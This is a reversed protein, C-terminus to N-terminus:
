RGAGSGRAPTPPVVPSPVAAPAGPVPAVPAAGPGNLGSGAAAGPLLQPNSPTQNLLNLELPSYGSEELVMNILRMLKPDSFAAPNAMGIQVIESLTDLHEQKASNEGTIIMQISYTLDTYYDMEVKVQKPSKAIQDGVLEGVLQIQAPDPMENNEIIYRKVVEYQYIKKKANLYVEIDDVDDMIDLIHEPTLGKAFDPLLWDNFVDELFLGMKEQVYTFFKTASALQQRGLKFPTNGPLTEGTVVEYSSCMRDAKKEIANIESQYEAFGRLETPIATIESKSVTLDGDLLDTLLNKVHLQDRTQYLHLLSIRLSAFFRNTIENAKETLDFCREYNGIGLWRGKRRRFHVEKYPFQERKAEKCFLVQEKGGNDVGSVIAMVYVSENAKAGVAAPVDPSGPKKPATLEAYIGKREKGGTKYRDYLTRPIEGWMEYVEYFPTTKDVRNATSTAIMEQNTDLFTGRPVTNGGAILAEVATQDWVKYSRLESQTMTHREIMIGDKLNKVAPDNMINILDVGYVDVKGEYNKCKKWVVTGFDPLEDAVTNMKEDFGTTKAYAMFERRLLWSKLEAGETTAKIYCDKTDLEINKTAQDNRDTVLDYFYKPDGNEDTAGSEFQNHQYFYIRKVVAYQNHTLGPVIEIENKLFNDKFNKVLGALSTPREGNNPNATYEYQLSKQQKTAM